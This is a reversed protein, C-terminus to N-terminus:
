PELGNMGNAGYLAREEQLLDRVYRNAHTWAILEDLSASVQWLRLTNDWSVSAALTGDPAFAVGSVTDGHGSFRRLGFGSAVDWLILSHDDSGSLALAGDPSFAVERVADTHGSFRRVLAGSEVDWLMVLTNSGGTLLWRGDPSFAVGNITSLDADRGPMAFRRVEQGTATDFLILSNVGGVALRDGAPSVALSRVEIDAGVWRRIELGTELNWHIILNENINLLPSAGSGSFATLGRPGFAVTRVPGQHRTFRRIIEGTNVSWLTVTTDESGSLVWRGDPSLAIDNVQGSHGGFRMIEASTAADYLIMASGPAGRQADRTGAIVRGGDPTFAVGSLFASGPTPGSIMRVEAGNRLDWVRVSGESSGSIAQRGDPSFAVRHVNQAHGLLRLEEAGTDLDWLQVMGQVSGTLAHRGDPSLALSWRAPTAPDDCAIAPLPEGTAVVWRRICGNFLAAVSEGDPSFLVDTMLADGEFQRVIAGDALNWLILRADEGGTLAYRGDPSFAVGYVISSHGSLERAIEGTTLDWLLVRRDLAASLAYRGTPSIAAATIVEAHASLRAQVRGDALDWLILTGDQASSLATQGDPGFSLSTVVGNHGQLSLLTQGTELDMLLIPGDMPALLATRGDPSVAMEWLFRDEGPVTFVRRAGPAYAAESLALQVVPPSDTVRAAELALAIALEPNNAALALRTNAVLALSRSLEAERRALAENADSTARAAEAALVNYESTARAAQENNLAQRARASLDFALVALVLAVLTSGLLLGVLTRLRQRDRRELAAQRELRAKEEANERARQAISAALFEEADRMLILSTHSAWDEFQALRAGRLLYSPDYGAQEWESAAVALQRQMRMDDRSEAIWEQLQGWEQILAEHAVEVIPGGSIPDHDFTLLRYKVFLRAIRRAREEDQAVAVLESWAVRRRTAEAGDGPAVLRLFMQRAAERSTDDLSRYLADARRALAGLVGGSAHYTALRLMNGDLKEFLETLAYQLMPLAGPQEGVDSVITAVLGPEAVVGVRQLPGTIARALENPTLPLMVESRQRFLAGLEPYLLPRDYYDARLTVVVRLRSDPAMVAALLSSLFHVRDSEAEVQTFVEEFQDILLLLEHDGVVPLVRKVAYNLGDAHERLQRLLGAPPTSAVRSLVADLEELPHPGPTMDVIVWRESGPVVGRRLAPILGARAVSSKGSGSPGVIALFRSNPGTEQLRAILREVFAERGFFDPADEEQFARLGKFPNEPAGDPMHLIAGKGDRLLNLARAHAVAQTRNNANLKTSINHIHTKVTGVALILERAIERNSMGAAVLELVELERESLQPPSDPLNPSVTM